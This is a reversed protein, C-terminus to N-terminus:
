LWGRERGLSDIVQDVAALVREVPLMNLSRPDDSFVTLGPVRYPVWRHTDKRMLALVPVRFASAIVTVATDPSVVLDATATFATLQDLDLPLAAGNVPQVLREAVPDGAPMTPIVITARPLRERFRALVPAFNEVPWLRDAMAAYLNVLIRPRGTGVSHWGREGEARQEDSFPLRARWDRDDRKVGFPSALAVINDVWHRIREARVPVNYVRDNTRGGVGIRWPAGTALMLVTTHKNVNNIAMRGDIVVDYGNRRLRRLTPIAKVLGERKHVIVENVFDLKRAIRANAPSCLLDLTFTPSSERIARLVEISVILDGVGDDRVVLIRYPRAKWDPLPMRHRGGFLWVLAWSFSSRVAGEVAALRM